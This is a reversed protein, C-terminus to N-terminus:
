EKKINAEKPNSMLGMKSMEKVMIDAYMMKSAPSMSNLAAISAAAQVQGSKGSNHMSSTPPQLNRTPRLALDATNRNAGSSLSTPDEILTPPSSSKSKQGPSDPKLM